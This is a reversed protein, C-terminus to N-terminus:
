EGIGKDGGVQLNSPELAGPVLVEVGGGAAAKEGEPFFDAAGGDEMGLFWLLDERESSFDHLIEDVCGVVDVRDVLDRLLWAM